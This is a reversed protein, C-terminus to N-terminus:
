PRCRCRQGMGISMSDTLIAPTCRSQRATWLFLPEDINFPRALFPVLVALVALTLTWYPHLASWQRIKNLKERGFRWTPAAMDIGELPIWDPHFCKESALVM